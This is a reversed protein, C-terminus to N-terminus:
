STCYSMHIELDKAKSYMKDCNECTYSTKKTYDAGDDITPPRHPKGSTPRTPFTKTKPPSDTLNLKGAKKLQIYASISSANVPANIPKGSTPRNSSTEKRKSASPPRGKGVLFEDGPTKIDRHQQINVSAIYKARNTINDPRQQYDSTKETAYVSSEPQWVNDDDTRLDGKARGLNSTNWLQQPATLKEQTRSGSGKQLSVIKTISNRLGENQEELVQIRVANAKVQNEMDVAIDGTGSIDPNVPGNLDPYEIMLRERETAEQIKNELTDINQQLCTISEELETKERTVTEILNEKDIVDKQLKDVQKRASKLNEEIEEKEEELTAVQDKLEENERDLTDVRQLLSGQKNQVNQSHKSASRSKAQEKNLEKSSVELKQSVDSLKSQLQSIEGQLTSIESANAKNEKLDKEITSKTNEIEILLKQQQELHTKLKTVETSLSERDQLIEDKQRTVMIVTENHSQELDKIKIDFQKQLAYQVEKEKRMDSDFNSVRKELHKYKKEFQELENKLPNISAMLSDMHNSLRSLDKNQEGAWRIVDNASLWKVEAVLPRYKQLSSPLKQAQCMNILTDGANRFSKQVVHCAECPVFATEVTQTHKSCADRAIEEMKIPSLYGTTVNGFKSPVTGESILSTHSSASTMSQTSMDETLKKMNAELDAIKRNKTKIDSMTQQVLTHLQIQKNCYQRVALGVSSSNSETIEGGARTLMGKAFASLTQVLYIFRDIVLEYLAIHAVQSGEPDDEAFDYLELLYEIDLDGSNKDPFKWSPQEVPGVRSVIDSIAWQLDKIDNRLSEIILENGLIDAM